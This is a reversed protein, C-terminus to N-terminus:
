RWNPDIAQLRRARLEESPTLRPELPTLDGYPIRAERPEAPVRTKGIFTTPANQPGRREHWRLTDRARRRVGWLDIAAVSGDDLEPETEARRVM